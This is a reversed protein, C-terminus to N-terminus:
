NIPWKFIHEHNTTIATATTAPPRNPLFLFSYFLSRCWTATTQYGIGFQTFFFLFKWMYVNFIVSLQHNNAIIAAASVSWGMWKFVCKINIKLGMQNPMLSNLTNNNNVISIKLYVNEYFFLFVPLWKISNTFLLSFFFLCITLYSTM